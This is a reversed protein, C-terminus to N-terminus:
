KALKRLEFTEGGAMLEPPRAYGEPQHLCAEFIELALPELLDIAVRLVPQHVEPRVKAGLRETMVALDSEGIKGVGLHHKIELRAGIGDREIAVRVHDDPRLAVQVPGSTEM